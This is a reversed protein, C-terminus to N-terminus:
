KEHSAEERRTVKSYLQKTTQRAVYTAHYAQEPKKVRGRRLIYFVMNESLADKEDPLVGIKAAVDDISMRRIRARPIDWFSLQDMEVDPDRESLRHLLEKNLRDPRIPVSEIRAMGADRDLREITWRELSASEQSKATKRARM